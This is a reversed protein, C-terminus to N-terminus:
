GPPRLRIIYIVELLKIVYGACCLGFGQKQKSMAEALLM